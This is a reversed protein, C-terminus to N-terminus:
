FLDFSIQIRCTLHLQSFWFQEERKDSVSVKNKKRIGQLIESKRLNFFTHSKQHLVFYLVSPLATLASRIKDLHPDSIKKEIQSLIQVLKKWINDNTEIFNGINLHPDIRRDEGTGGQHHCNLLSQEHPDKFVLFRLIFKLMVLVWSGATACNITKFVLCLM